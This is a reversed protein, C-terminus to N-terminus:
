AGVINGPPSMRSSQGSSRAPNIPRFFVWATVLLGIAGAIVTRRLTADHAFLALFRSWGQPKAEAHDVLPSIFVLTLLGAAILVNICFLLSPFLSRRRPPPMWAGNYDTM